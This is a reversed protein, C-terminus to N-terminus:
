PIRWSRGLIVVIDAGTPPTGGTIINGPPVNLLRALADRTAPKANAYVYLLTSAYTYRDADGVQAVRIGHQQLYAQTQTALGRVNTGNLVTVRAQELAIRQAENMPEGPTSPPTREQTPTPAISLSPPPLTPTVASRAKTAPTMVDQVVARIRDWKPLLVRAGAPTTYGTVMTEDVLRMKVQAPDVKSAMIALTVIDAPSLDTRIAGYLEAVLTPLRPIVDIRMAKDRAAMIVQQQRRARSFDSTSYRSRAYQLARTGNMHQWGAQFQWGAHKDDLLTPVNIDIGGLADIIRAFGDFYVAVYHHIPIGLTEGVTRMTLAPGGGPLKYYEGWVWATNIRNRTPQPLGNITVFLDRPISLLSATNTGPDLSAVMITDARRLNGSKSTGDLGVLLVNIRGTIKSASSASGAGVTPTVPADMPAAPPSPTTVSAPPTADPQFGLSELDADPPAAPEDLLDAIAAAIDGDTPPQDLASLVGIGTILTTSLAVLFITITLLWRHVIGPHPGSIQPPTSM